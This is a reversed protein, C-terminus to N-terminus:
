PRVNIEVVSTKNRDATAVAEIRVRTAVTVRPATYSIVSTGAPLAVLTNVPNLTGGGELIRFTVSRDISGTSAVFATITTSSGSGVSSPARLTVGTIAAPPPPTVNLTISATKSADARSVARVVVSTNVTVRPANFVASATGIANVAGGGSVVEWRVERDFSGTGMVRASLVLSSGSAVTTTPSDIMVSTITGGAARPKVTLMLTASKTKDVRSTAILRVTTNVTVEPAAFLAVPQNANTLTGGGSAISWDVNRDFNGTGTVSAVVPITQGSILETVPSEVRVGTITAVPPPTAPVVKINVRAFKSADGRATARLVVNIERNVTPAVYTMLGNGTSSLAELTGEGSEITWLVTRDIDGTGQVIASLSTRQGSTLQTRAAMAVVGQIVAPQTSAPVVVLEINVPKYNTDSPTGRVIVRTASSVSAPATYTGTNAAGPTVTGPGQVVEWRTVPLVVVTAPGNPNARTAQLRLTSTKGAALLPPDAWGFVRAADLTLGARAAEAAADPVCMTAGEVVWGLATMQQALSADLTYRHNSDNTAYGNNYSRLVPLTDEPCQGATPVVAYFAVTEYTWGLPNRKMFECEYESATYFHSNPGVGPTGFFRCVPSAEPPASERSMWVSFSQGTRSWGPGAGGAEIFRIDDASATVFFHNTTSNHFEIAEGDSAHAGAVTLLALAVFAFVARVRRALSFLSLLM